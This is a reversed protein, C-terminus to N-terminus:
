QRYFRMVNKCFIAHFFAKFNSEPQFINMVKLKIHDHFYEAKDCMKNFIPHDRFIEPIKEAQYVCAHTKEISMPDIDFGYVKYQFHPFELHVRDLVVALSYVEEGTGCGASLVNFPERQSAEDLAYARAMVDIDFFHDLDCFWTGGHTTAAHLLRHMEDTDRKAYILYDELAKCALLSMREEVFRVLSVRLNEDLFKQDTMMEALDIIIDRQYADLEYRM